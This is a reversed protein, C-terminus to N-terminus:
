LEDNLIDMFIIDHEKMDFQIANRRKGIMKFGIKEYCKIASHNYSYVRLMVNRLNLYSFSYKLLLKMAEEGYGKNWYSKDGIFIGIEATRHLYDINSLGVIGILKDNKIDIISYNHDKSIKDIIDLEVDYNINLNFISLTRTVELDNVWKTFEEVDARDIPSLYCKNGIIKKYHAM